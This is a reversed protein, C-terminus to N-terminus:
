FDRGYIRLMLICWGDPSWGTVVEDSCLTVEFLYIFLFSWHITMGIREWVAFNSNANKCMRDFSRTVYITIACCRFLYLSGDSPSWTDCYLHFWCMKESIMVLVLFWATCYSWLFFFDACIYLVIKKARRLFSRPRHGSRVTHSAANVWCFLSRTNNM